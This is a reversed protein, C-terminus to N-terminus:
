EPVPTAAGVSCFWSFVAASCRLLRLVMCFCATAVVGKPRTRSYVLNMLWAPITYINGAVLVGVRARIDREYVIKEILSNFFRRSTASGSPM